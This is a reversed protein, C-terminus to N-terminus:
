FFFFFLKSGIKSMIIKKLGQLKKNKTGDNVMRHVGLMIYGGRPDRCNCM